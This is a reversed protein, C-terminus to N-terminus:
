ERGGFWVESGDTIPMVFRCRPPLANDNSDMPYVNVYRSSETFHATFTAFIPAGASGEPRTGDNYGERTPEKLLEYYDNWKHDPNVTREGKERWSADSAGVMLGRIIFQRINERDIFVCFEESGLTYSTGPSGYPWGGM